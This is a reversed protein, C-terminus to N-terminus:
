DVYPLPNVPKGNRRLELTVVPRGSGAVGLPSGGVLVEGVEVDSRELGTVLSTWGGEHEIIVIQGYGRYAGAFAVRGEAPSVIQAGERPSLTLGQSLGLGSGSADLAGFGAIMRGTVPLSFPSPPRNSTVNAAPDDSQTALIARTLVGQEEAPVVGAGNAPRMRPGDLAALRGRLAGARDLEGVLADLDLAQEGLALAREAERSAEGSARRYEVRQQAEVVALEQRRSSLQQEEALLVEHAQEAERRLQRSRELRTRLAATRNRVEPVATSLAARLYVVDKVEGPRLISLAAPRRTFNQLAATLQVLPEQEEGLLVRLRERETEILTIRAEAAAIGAEAQQVRAAIAAAQRASQQAADEAEDAAAELIESRESAAQREAVAEELAQRTEDADEFVLAQQAGVGLGGGLALFAAAIALPLFGKNM